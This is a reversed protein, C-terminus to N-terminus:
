TSVACEESDLVASIYRAYVRYQVSDRYVMYLRAAVERGGCILKVVNPLKAGFREVVYALPFELFVGNKRVKVDVVPTKM